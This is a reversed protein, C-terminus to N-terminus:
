QRWGRKTHSMLTIKCLYHTDIDMNRHECTGEFRQLALGTLHVICELDEWHTRSRAVAATTQTMHAYNDLLQSHGTSRMLLVLLHGAAQLHFVVANQRLRLWARQLCSLDQHNGCRKLYIILRVFVVCGGGRCVLHTLTHFISPTHVQTQLM